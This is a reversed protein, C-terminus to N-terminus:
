FDDNDEPDKEAPAPEDRVINGDDDVFEISNLWDIFDLEDQTMAGGKRYTKDRKSKRGEATEWGRPADIGKLKLANFL